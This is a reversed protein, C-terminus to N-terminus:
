ADKRKKQTAKYAAETPLKEFDPKYGKEEYKSRPIPAAHKYYQVEARGDDTRYLGIAM